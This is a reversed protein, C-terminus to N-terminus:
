VSRAQGHINYTDRSMATGEIITPGTIQGVHVETKPLARDLLRPLVDQVMTRYSAEADLRLREEQQLRRQLTALDGRIVEVDRAFAKDSRDALDEVTITVTAGSGDDQVSRIHLACDPHATQLREVILPLMALDVPSMGGTYHLIIRPKEAFIREFAGDEYETAAKGNRGWFVEQCIVGKISWGGRQTEWLKAGTLDAGDLRSDILTTQRLDANCLNAASLNATSLNATSLNAADLDWYSFDKGSLDTGSLDTGNLNAGDLSARRLDAGSLDANGLNARNLYANTLNARRLSANSLNAGCLSANTLNAGSLGADTLDASSLSANTLNGSYLDARNLDAGSLDARSLDADNLKARCLNAGNLNAGRLDPVINPNEKRWANWVKGGGSLRPSMTRTPWICRRSGVWDMTALKAAVSLLSRAARLM